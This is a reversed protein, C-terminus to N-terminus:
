RMVADARVVTPPWGDEYCCAVEVRRPIGGLLSSLGEQDAPFPSVTRISASKVVSGSGIFSVSSLLRPQHWTQTDQAPSDWSPM